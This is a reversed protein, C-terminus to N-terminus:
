EYFAPQKKWVLLLNNAPMVIVESLTLTKVWKKLEEVDRYGGCGRELLSAHFEANSQSSFQGQQTFPGYQCFVGGAPLNEDVDQMLTIVEEKQMIHATNASFVADFDCEALSHVAAVYEVPRVLNTSPYADIWQNIGDHYPPQDSTHWTVHPLNSAFYVAHQGTGSGVEFVATADTLVRRLVDLIPGKNNECAQSFPKTM